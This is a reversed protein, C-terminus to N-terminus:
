EYEFLIDNTVCLTIRGDLIDNWVYGYKAQKAVIQVLCNLSRNALAAREKLLDILDERLRFSIPKRITATAMNM